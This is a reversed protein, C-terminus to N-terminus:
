NQKLMAQRKRNYPSFPFLPCRVYSCHIGDSDTIFGTGIDRVHHFLCEYCYINIAEKRTTIDVDEFITKRQKIM